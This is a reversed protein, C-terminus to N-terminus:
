AVKRNRVGMARTRVKKEAITRLVVQRHEEYITLLAKAVQDNAFEGGRDLLSQMERALHALEKKKKNLYVLNKKPYNEKRPLQGEYHAIFWRLKEQDIAMEGKEKRVLNVSGERALTKAEARLTGLAERCIRSSSEEEGM